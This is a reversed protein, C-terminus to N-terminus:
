ANLDQEASSENRIVCGPSINRRKALACKNIFYRVVSALGSHLGVEQERPQCVWENELQRAFRGVQIFQVVVLYSLREPLM